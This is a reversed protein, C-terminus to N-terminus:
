LILIKAMSYLAVKAGASLLTQQLARKCRYRKHRYRINLVIATKAADLGRLGHRPLRGQLNIVSMRWRTRPDTKFRSRLSNHRQRFPFCNGRNSNVAWASEWVIGAEM